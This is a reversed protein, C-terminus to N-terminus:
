EVQLIDSADVTKDVYKGHQVDEVIRFKGRNKHVVKARLIAGDVSVVCWTGNKDDM